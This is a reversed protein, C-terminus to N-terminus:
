IDLTLDATKARSVCPCILQQNEREVTSLTNDLHLPEGALVKIACTRCEGTKCSYIVPIDVALM